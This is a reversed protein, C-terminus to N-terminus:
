EQLIYIETVTKFIVNLKEFGQAKMEFKQKQM